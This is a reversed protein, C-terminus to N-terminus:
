RSRSPENWYFRTAGEPSAFWVYDEDPLIDTVPSALLEFNGPRYSIWRGEERVYREVGTDTGIWLNFGDIALARLSVGTVPGPYPDSLLEEGDIDYRYLGRGTAIFLVKEPKSMCLDRIDSVLGGGVPGVPRARMEGEELFFLGRDSGIWLGKNEVVLAYVEATPPIGLVPTITLSDVEVRAVGSRTGVWLINGSGELSMVFDDPLGDARRFRRWQDREYDFKVLGVSTAVWLSSGLFKLDFIESRGLERVYEQEHYEWSNMDFSMRTIGGGSTNFSNGGGLWISAGGKEIATVSRSVPGFRFRQWFHSLMSVSLLNGGWTGVWLNNWDDEVLSTVPFTRLQEDPDTQASLFPYRDSGFTATEIPGRRRAGEGRPVTGASVREVFDTGKRIRYWEQETRAYVFDNIEGSSIVIEQVQDVGSGGLDRFVRWSKLDTSYVALGGRTGCWLEGRASDFDVVLVERHPLGDSTTLPTTWRRDVYNYREIGGTTAIYLIRHDLDLSHVYRFDTFSVWDGERYLSIIQQSAQLRQQLFLGEVFVGLIACFILLRSFNIITKM